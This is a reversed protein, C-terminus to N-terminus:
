KKRGKRPFLQLGFGKRALKKPCATSQLSLATGHHWGERGRKSWGWRAETERRQLLQATLRQKEGEEGGGEAQKGAQLAYAQEREREREGLVRSGQIRCKLASYLVGFGWAVFGQGVLWM